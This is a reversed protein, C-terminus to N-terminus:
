TLRCEQSCITRGSRRKEPPKAVTYGPARHFALHVHIGYQKGWAVAQDIAKIKEEDIQEWDGDKMWFRYDLPLRVFNFGLDRIMQFDEEEFQGPTAGKMFMGLLNFGRWRVTPRNDAFVQATTAGNVHLALLSVGLFLGICYNKM